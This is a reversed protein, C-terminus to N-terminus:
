PSAVYFRTLKHYLCGLNAIAQLDYGIHHCLDRRYSQGAGTFTDGKECGCVPLVYSLTQVLGAACCDGGISANRLSHDFATTSQVYM